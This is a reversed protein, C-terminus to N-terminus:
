KLHTRDGRRTGIQERPCIPLTAQKLHLLNHRNSDSRSCWYSIQSADPSAAASDMRRSPNSDRASRWDRRTGDPRLHLARSPRILGKAASLQELDPDIGSAGVTLM